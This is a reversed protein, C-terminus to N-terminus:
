KLTKLVTIYVQAESDGTKDGLDKGAQSSDSTVKCDDSALLIAWDALLNSESNM